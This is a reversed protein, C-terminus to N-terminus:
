ACSLGQLQSAIAEEILVNQERVSLTDFGEMRHARAPRGTVPLDDASPIFFYDSLKRPEKKQIVYKRERGVFSQEPSPKPWEKAIRGPKDHSSPAVALWQKGKPNRLPKALIDRGISRAREGVTANFAEPSLEKDNDIVYTYRAGFLRKYEPFYREVGHFADLVYSQPVLRGGSLGRKENRALATEKSVRVFILYCDYGLARLKKVPDAIRNYAWGTSDIVLGLRRAGYTRMESDRLDRATNFLDRREGAKNLPVQADRLMRELHRDADIVKLGEGAFAARAVEGKGAGGSGVLFISKLAHRDRVGEHLLTTM